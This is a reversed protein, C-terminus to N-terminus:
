WNLSTKPRKALRLVGEPWQGINEILTVVAPLDGKKVLEFQPPVGIVGAVGIQVLPIIDAERSDGGGLLQAPPLQALRAGTWWDGVGKSRNEDVTLLQDTYNWLGHEDFKVYTWGATANTVWVVVLGLERVLQLTTLAGPFMEPSKEYMTMLEDHADALLDLDCGFEAAMKELVYQWRIPSVHHIRFAEDSYKKMVRWVLKYKLGTAQAVMQVFVTLHEHIFRTTELFHDDLDWLVGRVGLEDIKEAVRGIMPDYLGCRERM